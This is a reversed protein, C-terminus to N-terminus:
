KTKIPLWSPIKFIVWCIPLSLFSMGAMLLMIGSWLWREMLTNERFTEDGDRYLVALKSGIKQKRDFADIGYGGTSKLTKGVGNIKIKVITYYYTGDTQSGEMKVFDVITAEYPRADRLFARDSFYCPIAMLLFLVGSGFVLWYIVKKARDNVALEM